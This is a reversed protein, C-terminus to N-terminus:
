EEFQDYYTKSAVKIEGNLEATETHVIKFEQTGENIWYYRIDNEYTTGEIIDDATLNAFTIGNCVWVLGNILKFTLKGLIPNLLMGAGSLLYGQVITIKQNDVYREAASLTYSYGGFYGSDRSGSTYVSNKNESLTGKQEFYIKAAKKVDLLVEEPIEGDTKVGVDKGNDAFIITNVFLLSLILVLSIIKKM